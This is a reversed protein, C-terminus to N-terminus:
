QPYFPKEQQLWEDSSIMKLFEELLLGVQHSDRQWYYSLIYVKFNKFPRGEWDKIQNIIQRISFTIDVEADDNM